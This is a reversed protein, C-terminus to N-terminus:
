MTTQIDYVFHLRIVKLNVILLVTHLQCTVHTTVYGSRRHDCPFVAAQNCCVPGFAAVRLGWFSTEHQTWIVARWM